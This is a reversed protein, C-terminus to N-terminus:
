SMNDATGLSLGKGNSEMGIGLGLPGTIPTRDRYTQWQQVNETFPVAGYMAKQTQTRESLIHNPPEDMAYCTDTVEDKILQENANQQHIFWM